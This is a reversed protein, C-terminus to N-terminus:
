PVVMPLHINEEKNAAQQFFGYPFHLLLNWGTANYGFKV